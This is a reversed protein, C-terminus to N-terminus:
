IEILNPVMPARFLRPVKKKFSSSSITDVWPGAVDIQLEIHGSWLETRSVALGLTHVALLLNWRVSRRPYHHIFMYQKEPKGTAHGRPTGIGATYCGRKKHPNETWPMGM